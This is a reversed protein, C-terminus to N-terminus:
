NNNIGKCHDIKHDGVKLRYCKAGYFEGCDAIYEIKWGGLDNNIEIKDILSNIIEENQLNNEYKLFISDTDM